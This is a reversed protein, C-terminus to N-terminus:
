QAHVPAGEGAGDDPDQQDTGEAPSAGDHAGLLGFNPDHAWEGTRWDAPLAVDDRKALEEVWSRAESYFYSDSPPGDKPTDLVVRMRVPSSRDVVVNREQEGIRVTASVETVEPDKPVWRGEDNRRFFQDRLKNLIKQTRQPNEKTVLAEIYQGSVDGIGMADTRDRRAHSRVIRLQDVVADPNDAYADWAEQVILPEFTVGLNGYRARFDKRFQRRHGEGLSRGGVSEFIWYGTKSGEPVVVLQRIPFREVHRSERQFAPEDPRTPDNIDSVLGSRGAKMRTGITRGLRQIHQVEGYHNDRDAGMVGTFGELFASIAMLFDGRGNPMPCLVHRQKGGRQFLTELHLSYGILAHTTL